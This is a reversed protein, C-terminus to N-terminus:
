HALDAHHIFAARTLLKGTSCEYIMGVWPGSVCKFPQCSAGICCRRTVRRHQTSSHRCCFNGKISMGDKLTFQIREVEPKLNWKLPVPYNCKFNLHIVGSIPDLQNVQWYHCMYLAINCGKGLGQSLTWRSHSLDPLILATAPGSTRFLRSKGFHEFIGVLVSTVPGVTCM